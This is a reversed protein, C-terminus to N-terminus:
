SAASVTLTKAASGLNSSKYWAMKTTNCCDSGVAGDVSFVPATASTCAAPNLSSSRYTAALLLKEISPVVAGASTETAGAAVISKTMKDNVPTLLIVHVMSPLLSEVSAVGVIVGAPAGLPAVADNGM